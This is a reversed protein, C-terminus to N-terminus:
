GYNAGKILAKLGSLDAHQPQYDDATRLPHVMDRTYPRPSEEPDRHANALVYWLEATRDWDDKRRATAMEALEGFTFRWPEVGAIGAFEFIM